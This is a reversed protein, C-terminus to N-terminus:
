AKWSCPNREMAEFYVQEYRPIIKDITLHEEVYRRGAAGLRARLRDDGALREVAAALAAPDAKPVLLGNRDHRIVDQAGSVDTIVLPKRMWLAEAMVQSFAEQLTPQVVADVAAMLTMTDRRWGLLRVADGLHATQIQRELAGREPGEGVVLLSLRPVRGRLEAFARLLYRHGKEEHLRSFTGLVFRGDLGLDERVRRVNSASPVEYKEMVFGYPVKDIKDASVRQWRTLIQCIYDSPVVIRAAARNVVNELALLARRKLDSSSRYVADSYHRGIVLRTRPCLRTALYGIVGEDYHHAHLIDAKWRRLIRALACAARPIKWRSTGGLVWRPTGNSYVPAAINSSASRVCVGVQFRTRDAYQVINDIFDYRNVIHAFQVVRIM